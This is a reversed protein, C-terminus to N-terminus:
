PVPNRASMEPQAAHAKRAVLLTIEPAVAPGPHYTVEFRALRARTLLVELEAAAAPARAGGWPGRRRLEFADAVVVAGQPRAVRALEGAAGARDAWHRYALTAMVVDFQNDRFPLCRADARVFCVTPWRATAARVMAAAADVGVMFAAPHDRRLVALLRGTGCGVDLVAGRPPLFTAARRRVLEHVTNCLAAHFGGSDYTGAWREFTDVGGSPDM